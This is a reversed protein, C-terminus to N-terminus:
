RDDFHLGGLLLEPTELFEQAGRKQQSAFMARLLAALKPDSREIEPLWANREEPTMAISEDLLASLRSFQSASLDKLRAGSVRSDDVTM